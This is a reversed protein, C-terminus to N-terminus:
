KAASPQVAPVPSGSGAQSSPGALEAGISLALLITTVIVGAVLMTRDAKSRRKADVSVSSWAMVWVAITTVVVVLVILVLLPSPAVVAIAAGCATLVGFIFALQRYVQSAIRVILQKTAESVEHESPLELRIVGSAVRPLFVELAQILYAIYFPFLHPVLRNV